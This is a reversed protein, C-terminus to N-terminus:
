ALLGSEMSRSAEIAKLLKDSVKFFEHIGREEKPFDNILKEKFRERGNCVRFEYDPFIFRDYGDPNLEIFKVKEYIGLEELIRWFIGGKSIGVLFHLGTDFTYGRRRFPNIYGGFSPMAELLLVSFNLRALRLAAALGGAGSGIVIADYNEM